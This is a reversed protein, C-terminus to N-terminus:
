LVLLSAGAAIAVLASARRLSHASGTETQVSQESDNTTSEKTVNSISQQAPTMLLTDVVHVVGSNTLMDTKLLRATTNGLTVYQGTGNLSFSLSEGATSTYNQSGALLPSYLTTGNILQPRM